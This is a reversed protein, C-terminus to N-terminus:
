QELMAASVQRPRQGQILCAMSVQSKQNRCKAAAPKAFAFPNSQLMVWDTIATQAKSKTPLQAFPCISTTRGLTSQTALHEIRISHPEQLLPSHEAQHLAAESM